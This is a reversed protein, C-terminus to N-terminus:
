VPEFGLAGEGIAESIEDESMGLMACVEFNHEGMSPGKFQNDPTRSLRFAPGRYTHEGIVSHQIKRFFGRYNLQVDERTDKSNAVM